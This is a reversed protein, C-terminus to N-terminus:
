DSIESFTLPLFPSIAGIIGNVIFTLLFSKITDAAHIVIYHGKSKCKPRIYDTNEPSSVPSLPLPNIFLLIFYV